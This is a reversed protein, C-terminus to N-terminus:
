KSIDVLCMMFHIFAETKHSVARKGTAFQFNRIRKRKDTAAQRSKEEEGPIEATIWQKSKSAFPAPPPSLQYVSDPNFHCVTEDASKVCIFKPSSTENMAM